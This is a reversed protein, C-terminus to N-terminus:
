RNRNVKLTVKPAVKFEELIAEFLEKLVAKAFAKRKLELMFKNITDTLILCFVNTEEATSSKRQKRKKVAEIVPKRVHVM